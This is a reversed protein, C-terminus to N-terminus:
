IYIGSMDRDEIRFMENRHFLLWEVFGQHATGRLMSSMENISLAGNRNKDAIKFIHNAWEGYERMNSKNEEISDEISASDINNNNGNSATDIQINNEDLNFSPKRNQDRKSTLGGGGNSPRRQSSSLAGVTAPRFSEQQAQEM